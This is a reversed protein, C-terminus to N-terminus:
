MDCYYYGTLKDSIGAKKDEEPDYYGTTPTFGFADLIDAVRNIADENKSVIMGEIFEIDNNEHAALRKGFDEYSFDSDFQKATACYYASKNNSFKNKDEVERMNVAQVFDNDVYLLRKSDDSDDRPVDVIKALWCDTETENNGAYLYGTVYPTTENPTELVFWDASTKEKSNRSSLTISPYNDPKEEWLMMSAAITEDGLTQSIELVHPKDDKRGYKKVLDEIPVEYFGKNGRLVIKM